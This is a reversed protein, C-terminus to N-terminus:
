DRGIFLLADGAEISFGVSDATARNSISTSTGPALLAKTLPWEVGTLCVGQCATFPILSVRRGLKAPSRQTIPGSLPYMVGRRFLIEPRLPSAFISAYAALTHDPLDGELGTIAIRSGSFEELSALLKDADTTNQDEIRRRPIERLEPVERLSDLDGVILNPLLGAEACRNAAGDAAIIYKAQQLFCNLTSLPLDEGALVGIVDYEFSGSMRSCNVNIPLRIQAIQQFFLSFMPFQPNRSLEFKMGAERRNWTRRRWKTVGFKGNECFIAM